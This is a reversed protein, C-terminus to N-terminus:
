AASSYVPRTNIPSVIQTRSAAARAILEQAKACKRPMGIGDLPYSAYLWECFRGMGRLQRVGLCSSRHKGGKRAYRTLRYGVGLGELVGILETWELCEAGWFTVKPASGTYISGDGDMFGRWFLVHLHSPIRALVLSPGITSKMAFGLETLTRALGRSNMEIAYSPRGFPSGDPRKRQRTYIAGVGMGRLFPILHEVDECVSDLRVTNKSVSGDAWLRGLTYANEPISTDTLFSPSLHYYHPMIGPNCSVLGGNDQLPACERLIEAYGSEM